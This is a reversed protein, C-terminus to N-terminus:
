QNIEQSELNELHEELVKKRVILKNFEERVDKGEPNDPNYEWLKQLEIVIEILENSTEEYNLM